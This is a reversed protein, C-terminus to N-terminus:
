LKRPLNSANAGVPPSANTMTMAAGTSTAWHQDNTHVAHWCCPSSLLAFNVAIKRRLQPGRPRELTGLAPCGLQSSPRRHSRLAPPLIKVAALTPTLPSAMLQLDLRQTAEAQTIAPDSCRLDSIVDLFFRMSRRPKSM